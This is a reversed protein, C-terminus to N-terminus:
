GGYVGPNQLMEWLRGTGLANDIGAVLWINGNAEPALTPGVSAEFSAGSSLAV